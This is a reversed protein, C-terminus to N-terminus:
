GQFSHLHKPNHDTARFYQHCLENFPKPGCLCCYTAYLPSEKATLQRVIEPTVRGHAFSARNGDGSNDAPPQEPQETESLYHRVTLRKDKKCLNELMERCWIDAETKNFYLLCIHEIRNSTRELLYLLLALMPTLGSGAALLGFRNHHRLKGLVFNGSPQSVQLSTGLPVPRTLHKSLCGDPYSKILLPVFTGPCDTSVCGMPVPTYSRSVYEGEISASVSVHYGVPTVQLLCNNKPRLLLACSDHTIEVRTAVDYEHLQLECNERREYTMTGYSTWLAPCLKTFMLEIKGSELSTRAICPWRVNNALHFRYRHQVSSELLINVTVELHDICEVLVGPNALSRTYFILTLEATKQIWDFRPVIPVSLRLSDDSTSSVITLANPPTTADETGTDVRDTTSQAPSQQTEVPAVKSKTAQLFSAPPAPPLKSAPKSSDGLNLTVTNRLPGIYCKALLSEYNVWAHVEEFLKTADKGAGRMLEDAGGPHFNMYRTVNYVKGRIAMWTDDPRNHKALEAHTVPTIRGGVGTLDIGSNGLRIWDMLSHGPKLATKNRPNGENEGCEEVADGISKKEIGDGDTATPTDGPQGDSRESTAQKTVSKLKRGWGTFRGSNARKESTSREGEKVGNATEGHTMEGVGDDVDEDEDTATRKGKRKFTKLWGCFNMM